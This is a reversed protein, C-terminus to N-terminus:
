LKLFFEMKGIITIANFKLMLNYFLELISETSNSRLRISNNYKADVGKIGYFSHLKLSM